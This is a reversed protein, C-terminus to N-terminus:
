AIAVRWPDPRCLNRMSSPRRAGPRPALGLTPVLRDTGADLRASDLLSAAKGPVPGASSASSTSSASVSPMEALRPVLRHAPSLRPGSPGPSLRNMRDLQREWPASATVDAELPLASRSPRSSAVLTLATTSSTISVTSTHEVLISNLEGGHGASPGPMMLSVGQSASTNTTHFDPVRVTMHEKPSYAATKARHGLDSAPVENGAEDPSYDAVEGLRINGDVQFSPRYVLDQKLEPPYRFTSADALLM